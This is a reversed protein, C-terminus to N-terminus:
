STLSRPRHLSGDLQRAHNGQKVDTDCLIIEGEKKCVRHDVLLFQGAGNTWINQKISFSATLRGAMQVVKKQREYHCNRKRRQM